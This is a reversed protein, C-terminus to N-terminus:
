ARMRVRTGASETWSTIRLRDGDVEVLSAERIGLSFTHEDDPGPSGVVTVTGAIKADGGDLQEDLPASHLSYRPDRVLDAAKVAHAMCGIRLDVPDDETLEVNTGSVRPSGDTRVTGIIHHPHAELRARIAAALEPSAAAFEAWIMRENL